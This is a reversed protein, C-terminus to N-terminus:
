EFVAVATGYKGTALQLEEYYDGISLIDTLTSTVRTHWILLGNLDCNDFGLVFNTLELLVVFNSLM